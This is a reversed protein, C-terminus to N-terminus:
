PGTHFGFQFRPIVFFGVGIGVDTYSFGFFVSFRVFFVINRNKPIVQDHTIVIDPQTPKCKRNQIYAQTFQTNVDAMVLALRRTSQWHGDRIKEM